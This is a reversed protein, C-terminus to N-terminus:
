LRSGHWSKCYKEAEFCRPSILLSQIGFSLGCKSATVAVALSLSRTHDKLRNIRLLYVGVDEVPESTGAIGDQLAKLLISGHLWIGSVTVAKVGIIGCGAVCYSVM